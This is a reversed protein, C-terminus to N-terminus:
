KKCGGIQQGACLRRRFSKGFILVADTGTKRLFSFWLCAREGQRIETYKISIKNYNGANQLDIGSRGVGPFEIERVFVSFGAGWKQAGCVFRRGGRVRLTNWRPRQADKVAGAMKETRYSHHVRSPPNQREAVKRRGETRVKM